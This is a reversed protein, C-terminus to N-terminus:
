GCLGIRPDKQFAMWANGDIYGRIFPLQLHEPVAEPWSLVMSKRPTIGIDVLYNVLDKSSWSISSSEFCEDSFGCKYCGDSINTTAETLCLLKKLQKRDSRMLSIGVVNTKNFGLDVSV